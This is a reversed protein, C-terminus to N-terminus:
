EIFGPMDQITRVPFGILGRFCVYSNAWYGRDMLEPLKAVILRSRSRKMPAPFLLVFAFMINTHHAVLLGSALIFDSSISLRIPRAVISAVAAM